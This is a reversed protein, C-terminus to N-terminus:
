HNATQDPEDLILCIYRLPVDGINRLGHRQGAFVRTVCGPEVPVADGNDYYEGRGELYYYIESEGKHEHPGVWAGVPLSAEAFIRGAGNLEERGNLIHTMELRGSGMGVAGFDVESHNLEEKCRRM